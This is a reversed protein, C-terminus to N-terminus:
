PQPQPQRTCLCLHFLIPLHLTPAPAHLPLPAFLIPLHLAPAPAHLPLPAFIPLHKKDRPLLNGLPHDAQAAAALGGGQRIRQHGTVVLREDASLGKVVHVKGQWYVGTVVTRELAKGQQEVFVLRRGKKELVSHRPVLVQAVYSQLRAHARVLMSARLQGQANKVDAEIRYNRDKEGAELSVFSVVAPLSTQPLADFTLTVTAGAKFFRVDSEPVPFVAKMRSVDLVEAVQKGKRVLEGPEVLRKSVYGAIPTRILSAQFNIEALNLNLRASEYRSKIGELQAASIVERLALKRKYDARALQYSVKALDRQNRMRSGSISVLLAQAKLADGRKFRLKGAIGEVESFLRVRQYPRLEGVYTRSLTFDETRVVMVEVPTGAAQISAKAKTEASRGCAGLLLLGGLLLAGLSTHYAIKGRSGGKADALDAPCARGMNLGGATGGKPKRRGATLRGATVGKPNRRGGYQVGKPNADALDAPCARGMNLRTPNLRGMSGGKPNVHALDAPRNKCPRRNECPPNCNLSM